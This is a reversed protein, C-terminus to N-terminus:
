AVARIKAPLVVERLMAQLRALYKRQWDVIAATGDYWVAALGDMYADVLSSWTRPCGAQMWQEQSPYPGNANYQPVQKVAQPHRANHLTIIACTVAGNLAWEERGTMGDAVQAPPDYGAKKETLYDSERIDELVERLDGPSPMLNAGAGSRTGIYRDIARALLRPEQTAFMQYWTDAVMGTVREGGRGHYFEALKRITSDFDQRTM